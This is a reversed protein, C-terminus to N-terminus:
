RAYYHNLKNTHYIVKDELKPKDAKCLYSLGIASSILGISAAMSILYVKRDFNIENMFQNQRYSKQKM